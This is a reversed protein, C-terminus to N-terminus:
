NPMNFIRNDVQPNIEVESIEYGKVRHGDLREIYQPIMFGGFEKYDLFYLSQEFSRDGREVKISKKVLLFSTSDLYWEEVRGSKLTVELHYTPSGDLTELAVLAVRHGKAEFDVVAGDLDALAQIFTKTRLDRIPQPSTPRIEDMEWITEGDFAAVMKKGANIVELHFRDPRAQTITFPFELGRSTYQGSLRLSILEESGGVAKIYNGVIEEVTLSAAQGSLKSFPLAVVLLLFIAKVM